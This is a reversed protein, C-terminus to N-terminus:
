IEDYRDHQPMLKVIREPNKTGEWVCIDTVGVIVFYLSESGFSAKRLINEWDDWDITSPAPHAEPHTHWEGLYQMTQKSETWAQNVRQQAPKRARFFSFRGRRDAQSPETMEDVVVNGGALLQRGLLIGGSEPAVTTIQRYKRIKEVVTADLELTGGSPRRFIM